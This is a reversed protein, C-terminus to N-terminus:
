PQRPKESSDALSAYSRQQWHDPVVFIASASTPDGTMTKLMVGHHQEEVLDKLMLLLKEHAIPEQSYTYLSLWQHKELLWFDADESKSHLYGTLESFTMWIDKPVHATSGELAMCQKRMEDAWPLFLRGRLICESTLKDIGLKELAERAQTKECLRLQKNALHAAKKDLRDINNPGFWLCRSQDPSPLALYFKVAIEQHIVSGTAEDRVIFDFEGLTKGRDFVQLNHALMHYRPSCEIYHRWLQEVYSGLFHSQSENLQRLLEPSHNTSSPDIANCVMHTHSGLEEAKILDQQALYWRLNNQALALEFQALSPNYQQKSVM